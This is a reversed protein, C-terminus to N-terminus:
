GCFGGRRQVVALAENRWFAYFPSSLDPRHWEPTRDDQHDIDRGEVCIGLRRLSSGHATVLETVTPLCSAIRDAGPGSFSLATITRANIPGIVNLFAAFTSFRLTPAVATTSWADPDYTFIDPDSQPSTSTFSSTETEPDPSGFNFGLTNSRYLIPLAETAITRCTALIASSPIDKHAAYRKVLLPTVSGSKQATV